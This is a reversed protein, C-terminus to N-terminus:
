PEVKLEALVRACRACVTPHAPDRGVAESYKWCRECKRASAKAVEICCNLLQSQYLFRGDVDQSESARQMATTIAADANDRVVAGQSVILIDEARQEDQQLMEGLRPNIVEVMFRVVPRPTYFEGSDGAADRMEKLM